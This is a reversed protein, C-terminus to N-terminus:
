NLGLRQYVENAPIAKELGSEIRKWRRHALRADREDELWEALFREIPKRNAKAERQLADFLGEPLDLAVTGGGTMARGGM